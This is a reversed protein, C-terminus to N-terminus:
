AVAQWSRPGEFGPVREPRWWLPESVCGAQEAVRRAARDVACRALLVATLVALEEGTPSGHEVRLLSEVHLVEDDAGGGPGLLASM